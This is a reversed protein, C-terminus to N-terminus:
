ANMGFFFVSLHLVIVAVIIMIIIIIIDVGAHEYFMEACLCGLYEKGLMLPCQPAFTIAIHFKM